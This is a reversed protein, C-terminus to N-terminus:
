IAGLNTLFTTINNKHAIQDPFVGGCYWIPIVAMSSSGIKLNTQTIIPTVDPSTAGIQVSDELAYSTNNSTRVIDYLTNDSFTGARAVNLVNLGASFQVKSQYIYIGTYQNGLEGFVYSVTGSPSWTSCYAGMQFSNMTWNVGDVSPLFNTRLQYTTGGYFTAGLVSFTPDPDGEPPNYLEGTKSFFGTFHNGNGLSYCGFEDYVQWNGVAAEADVLTVIATEETATLASMRDLVAAAADSFSSTISFTSISNFLKM